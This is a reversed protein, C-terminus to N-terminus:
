REPDPAPRRNTLALRWETLEGREVRDLLWMYMLLTQVAFASTLLFFAGEEIPLGLVTIGTTHPDSLVWIGREIALRDITCLYLTPGAIGLALTKRVRWLYPWGFGWHISLIPGAWLLLAGLYYLSEVGLMLSGVGAVLIGALVGIGRKWLPIRILSVDAVAPSQFLWLCVVIPQFIFFLYEGIPAQWVYGSTAGEGYWWVGEAILLNDWPITYVLALVLLIALGSLPEPGSWAAGRAYALLGLLLMPPVVFLLHFEIYSLPAM